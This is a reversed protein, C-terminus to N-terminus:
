AALSLRRHSLDAVYAAVDHPACLLLLQLQWTSASAPTAFMAAAAAAAAANEVSDRLMM